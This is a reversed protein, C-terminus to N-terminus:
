IGIRFTSLVAIRRMMMVERVNIAAARRTIGPM